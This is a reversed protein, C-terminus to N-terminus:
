KETRRPGYINPHNMSVFWILLLLGLFFSAVQALGTFRVEESDLIEALSNSSTLDAEVMRLAMATIASICFLGCGISIIELGLSTLLVAPARLSIISKNHQHNHLSIQVLLALLGGCVALSLSIFLGVQSSMQQIATQAINALITEGGRKGPIESHTDGPLAQVTPPKGAPSDAAFGATCLVILMGLLIWGRSRM